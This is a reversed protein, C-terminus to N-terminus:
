INRRSLVLDVAPGDMKVPYSLLDRSPSMEKRVRERGTICTWCLIPRKARIMQKIYDQRKEMLTGCPCKVIYSWTGNPVAETIGTREGLEVIKAGQVIDGLSYQHPKYEFKKM